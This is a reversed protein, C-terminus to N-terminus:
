GAISRRIAPDRRVCRARQGCGPSACRHASGVRVRDPHRFRHPDEPDRRGSGRLHVHSRVRRRQRRHLSMPARGDRVARPERFTRRGVPVRVSESGDHPRVDRAAAPRRGAASRPPAVDHARGSRSQRAVRRAARQLADVPIDDGAVLPLGHEPQRCRGFDHDGHRAVHGAPRRVARDASVRAHVHRCVASERHVVRSEAGAVRASQGGRSELGHQRHPATASDRRASVPVRQRQADFGTFRDPHRSQKPRSAGIFARTLRDRYMGHLSFKNVPIFVGTLLGGGILLVLLTVIEPVGAGKPHPYDPLVHLTDIRTLLGVNLASLLVLLLGVFAPAALLFVIRRTTGVSPTTGDSARSTRAATAGALATILGLLAKATAPGAHLASTVEVIVWKIAPPGAFVVVSGALWAVSTILLWAGFRSQWELDEDTMEGNSLGVFLTGSLGLLLLLLPVCTGAYVEARALPNAFVHTALWWAGAAAIGGSLIAALWTWPRWWRRGVASAVLWVGLHVLVGLLVLPWFSLAEADLERSWAWYLTLAAAGLSLPLHCVLLFARQSGQWNGGSPLDFVAYCISLAILAIAAVALWESFTQLSARDIWEQSGLDTLAFYLRPILLAGTLLPILISANLLLNRAVTAVLTWVDVSFAGVKPDLYSSYERIRRVPEPEPQAPTARVGSLQDFMGAPAGGDQISHYLWASFWAGTYGGGSVTSLFDFSSLLGRRALGQLIGVAFSASRIGGGSLCLAAHARDHIAAHIAALREDADRSVIPYGDPLRGHLHIFEQELVAYQPLPPDQGAARISGAIM